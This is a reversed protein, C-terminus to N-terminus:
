SRMRHLNLSIPAIGPYLSSFIVQEGQLSLPKQAGASPQFVLAFTIHLNYSLHHKMIIMFQNLTIINTWYVFMNCSCTTKNLFTQENSMKPFTFGVLKFIVFICHLLYDFESEFQLESFARLTENTGGSTVLFMCEGALKNPAGM